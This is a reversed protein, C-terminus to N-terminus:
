VAAGPQHAPNRSQSYYVINDIYVNAGCLSGDHGATAQEDPSYATYVMLGCWQSVLLDKYLYFEITIWQGTYDGTKIAGAGTLLNGNADFLSYRGKYHGTTDDLEGAHTLSGDFRTDRGMYHTSASITIPKDFWIDFSIYTGAALTGVKAGNIGLTTKNNFVATDTSWQFVGERGAAEPQYTLKADNYAIVNNNEYDELTALIATSGAYIPTDNADPYTIVYGAGRSTDSVMFNDIYVENGFLSTNIVGLGNDKSDALYNSALKYEVTIWKNKCLGDWLSGSMLRYGDADYFNYSSSDYSDVPNYLYADPVSWYPAINKTSYIDFSIYRGATLEGAVSADFVLRTDSASVEVLASWQWANARGGVGNVMSISVNEPYYAYMNGDQASLNLISTDGEDFLMFESVQELEEGGFSVKYELVFSIKSNLAKVTTNFAAYDDGKNYTAFVEGSANKVEYSEVTFGETIVPNLGDAKAFTMGAPLGVYENFAITETGVADCGACVYYYTNNGLADTSALTETSIVVKTYSHEGPQGYTFTDTGEKGCVSCSKNYVASSTCNAESVLYKNDVISVWNHGNPEGYSFVNTDAEGCAACSYYYEASETCTAETALYDESAVMGTMNHAALEGYSFTDTGQEGCECSKYYTAQETCTAETALYDAEAVERDYVHSGLEGAEFTEEGAAGCVCSKYYTAKSICNAVTALYTEEVVEQDYVHAELEGAEFTEEGAEGCKCSKYYTAKETCTAESALYDAEVVERDYVHAGLEGYSEGCVECVAQNECDASGGSHGNAAGETAGCVSCTKPTTCTANDWSHGLKGIVPVETLEVEGNEDAFIKECGSCSYYSESGDTTCTAAVEANLTLEHKHGGCGVFTMMGLMVFVATLLVLIKKM